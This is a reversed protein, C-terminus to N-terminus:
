HLDQFLSKPNFIKLNKTQKTPQSTENGSNAHTWSYPYTYHILKMVSPSYQETYKAHPHSFSYYKKHAQVHRAPTPFDQRRRCNVSLRKWGTWSKVIPTSNPALITVISPFGIFSCIQSVTLKCVKFKTKRHNKWNSIRSCAQTEGLLIKTKTM